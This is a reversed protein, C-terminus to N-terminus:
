INFSNSPANLDLPASNAMSGSCSARLYYYGFDALLLFQLLHAVVIAAASFCFSGDGHDEAHFRAINEAGHYWFAASFMRSALTAFVYHATYSPVKGMKSSMLLQQLMSVTDLYLSTTWAIDFTAWDNLTPHVLVALAVCAIAINKVDMTDYEKDYTTVHTKYICRLLHLVMLLSCIDVLQYFMDGTTDLPLYGDVFLTSSLRFCLAMAQLIMTKGSVGGVSHSNTVQMGILVFSLCQALVSLTLVSSFEKEALQHFVVGMLLLCGGYAAAMKPDLGFIQQQKESRPMDEFSMM